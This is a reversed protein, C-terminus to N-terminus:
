HPSQPSRHVTIMVAFDQHSIVGSIQQSIRRGFPRSPMIQLSQHLIRPNSDFALLTQKLPAFAHSVTEQHLPKRRMKLGCRIPVLRLAPQPCAEHAELRISQNGIKAPLTSGGNQLKRKVMRNLHSCDSPSGAHSALDATTSGGHFM